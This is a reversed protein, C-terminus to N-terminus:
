LHRRQNLETKRTGKGVNENLSTSSSEPLKIKDDSATGIKTKEMSHVVTDDSLYIEACESKTSRLKRKGKSGIEIIKPTSTIGKENLETVVDIKGNKSVVKHASGCVDHASGCVDGTSIGENDDCVINNERVLSFDLVTPKTIGVVSDKRPRGRRQKAKSKRQLPNGEYVGDNDGKHGKDTNSVIPICDSDSKSTKKSPAKRNKVRTESSHCTDSLIERPQSLNRLAPVSSM